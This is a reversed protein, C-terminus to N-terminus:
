IRRLLIEDTFDSCYFGTFDIHNLVEAHEELLHGPRSGTAFVQKNSVVSETLGLKEINEKAFGFGMFFIKDAGSLEKTFNTNQSEVKKDRILEIVGHAMSIEAWRNNHTAFPLTDNSESYPPAFKGLKGYVHLINSELYEPYKFKGEFHKNQNYLNQFLTFEIAREYNFTIITLGEILVKWDEKKLWFQWFRNAWFAKKHEPHPVFDGRLFSGSEYGLLRYAILFRIYQSAIERIEEKGSFKTELFHTGADPSYGEPNQNRYLMLGERILQIQKEFTQIVEQKPRPEGKAYHHFLQNLGDSQYHPRRDPKPYPYTNLDAMVEDFLRPGLPYRLDASAGAGLVLVTNKMPKIEPYIYAPM